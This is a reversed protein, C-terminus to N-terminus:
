QLTSRTVQRSTPIHANDVVDLRQRAADLARRTAAHERAGDKLAKEYGAVAEQLNRITAAQEENKKRLKAITKDMKVITKEVLAANNRLYTIEETAMEFQPGDGDRGGKQKKKM